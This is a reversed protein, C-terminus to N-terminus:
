LKTSSRCDECICIVDYEAGKSTAGIRRVPISHHIAKSTGHSCSPKFSPKWGSTKVPSAVDCCEGAPYSVACTRLNTSCTNQTM